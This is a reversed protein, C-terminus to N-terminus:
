REPHIHLKDVSVKGAINHGQKKQSGANEKTDSCSKKINKVRRPHSGRQKFPCVATSNRR